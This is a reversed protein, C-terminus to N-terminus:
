ELLTSNLPYSHSEQEVVLVIVFSVGKCVTMPTSTTQQCVCQHSVSLRCNKRCVLSSSSDLGMISQTVLFGDYRANRKKRRNKLSEIQVVRTGNSDLGM